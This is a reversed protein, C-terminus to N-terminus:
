GPKSLKEGWRVGSKRLVPIRKGDIERRPGEHRKPNLTETKRHHRSTPSEAGRGEGTWGLNAYTKAVDNWDM